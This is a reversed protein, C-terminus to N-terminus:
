DRKPHHVPLDAWDRTTWSTVLDLAETPRRRPKKRAFIMMIKM